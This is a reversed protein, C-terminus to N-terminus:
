ALKLTLKELREQLAREAEAYKHEFEDDNDDDDDDAEPSQATPTKDGGDRGLECEAMCRELRELSAQPWAKSVDLPGDMTKAHKPLKVWTVKSAIFCHIDPEMLSPLDLTGTKLLIIAPSLHSTCWLKTGCKPCATSGSTTTEPPTTGVSTVRNAEITAFTAFASGTTKQCDACHCAYCYLPAEMRYRVSACFCGGTIAPFPRTPM